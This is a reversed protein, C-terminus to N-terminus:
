MLSSNSTQKVFFQSCFKRPPPFLTLKANIIFKLYHFLFGFPRLFFQFNWLSPARPNIIKSDPPCQLHLFINFFYNLLFTWATQPLNPYKRSNGMQSGGLRNIGTIKKCNAHTNKMPSFFILFAYDFNQFFSPFNLFM